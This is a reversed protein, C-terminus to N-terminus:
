VGLKNLCLSHRSAAYVDYALLLEAIEIEPLIM